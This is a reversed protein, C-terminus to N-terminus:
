GSRDQRDGDHQHELQDQAAKADTVDRGVAVVANWEPDDLYNNLDLEVM